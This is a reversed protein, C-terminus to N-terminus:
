GGSASKGLYLGIIACFVCVTNSALLNAIASVAGGNLFLRATELAYSSFTTFGGLFGTILFLRLNEPAIREEFFAFLFGIFLSGTINVFFTGFPFFSFHSFFHTVASSSIFRAVAGLGGGIFIFLLKM